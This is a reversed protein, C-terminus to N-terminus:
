SSLRNKIKNAFVLKEKPTDCAAIADKYKEIDGLLAVAVEWQANVKPKGGGKQTSANPGCPPYLSRKIDADESIIALLKVSLQPDKWSCLLHTYPCFLIYFLESM